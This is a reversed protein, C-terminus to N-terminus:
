KAQESEEFLPPNAFFQRAELPCADWHSAQKLRQNPIRMCTTQSILVDTQYRKTLDHLAHAWNVTEGIATYTHRLSTGFDGVLAQGTHIGIRVRIDPWDPHNRNFAELEKLLIQASQFAREAHDTQDLPANWFAMAADGIYKDLTGETEHIARTMLDLVKTTLEGLTEPPMDAALATFREIDAFLVTIERKQTKLVDEQSDLLQHAVSEALYGKFLRTIRQNQKDVSWWEWLMYTSLFLVIAVLPLSSSLNPHQHVLWASILFWGGILGAGTLLSVHPKYRRLAWLLLLLSSTAYLATISHAYGAKIPPSQSLLSHLLEAHIIVGPLWSGIPTNVQDSLGLASSGLLIFQGNFQGKEVNDMLLDYASVSRWAKPETRYPISFYAPNSELHRQHLAGGTHLVMAHALSPWVKKDWAIYKPLKRIVGDSDILPTIHGVCQAAESLSQHNTVYGKARLSQPTLPLGQTLKGIQRIQNSDNLDFASALCIPHQKIAQALAQDGHRNRPEPFVLDLGLVKPTHREFLRNILKAIVERSWPWPGIAQLSNEDIDIITIEAPTQDSTSLNLLADNISNNPYQLISPSFAGVWIFVFILTLLSKKLLPTDDFPLNPM